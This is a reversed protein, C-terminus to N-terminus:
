KVAVYEDSAAAPIPPGALLMVFLAVIASAIFKGHHKM